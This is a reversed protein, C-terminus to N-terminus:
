KSRNLGHATVFFSERGWIPKSYHNHGFANNSKLFSLFDELRYISHKYM